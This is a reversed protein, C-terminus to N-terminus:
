NQKRNNHKKSKLHANWSILGNFHQDCKSCHRILKDDKPMNLKVFPQYLPPHAIPDIFSDIIDFAKQKIQTDWDELKTAELQYITPTERNGSTLFRNQIWKLQKKSYKITASKMNKIGQSLLEKGKDTERDKPDLRLYSHFEKFGISQFIGETYDAKRKEQLPQQNYDNHFNILEQVLGNEIMTDIRERLRVNLVEQECWLWLMISNRYRLPGGYENGGLMKRQEAIFQSYPKNTQQFVQLRRIIKRRSKPHLNSAEIPDIETLISHLVESSINEVLRRIIPYKFLKEKNLGEESLIPIDDKFKEMIEKEKEQISSQQVQDPEILVHYLVSEIYYNTGGVMIPM